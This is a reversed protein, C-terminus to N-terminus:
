ASANMEKYLALRNGSPDAFIAFWGTGPIEMMPELMKGGNAEIQELSAEISDTGIYVLLGAHGADAGEEMSVFGGGPGGEASFMRYDFTPDHQIKWGFVKAYFDASTKSDRAPIEVHVIPHSAM